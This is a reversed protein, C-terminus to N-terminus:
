AAFGEADLLAALDPRAAALSAGMAVVHMPDLDFRARKQFYQGVLERLGPLATSGGALFIADVDRARVRGEALVHDVLTFTGRVLDHTIGALDARSVSVRPDAFPGAPDVEALEISATEADLLAIKAAECAGVLRAFTVPDAALDWRHRCLVREAVREALVRDVDDGGLYPDGAHAVVRFPYRSCDVLALDFTGGGLDYVVGYRVNSRELYSIATAVPEDVLAVAAFGARRAAELTAEREAAEFAAPVTIVARRASPDCEGRAAAAVLLRAAVDVPTLDGARTRLAALGDRDVVAYPHHEAFRRARPSGFRAGILRKTSLLTHAPDIPRRARAEWGVLEEGSPPFALASPLLTPRSAAPAVVLPAGHHAIM